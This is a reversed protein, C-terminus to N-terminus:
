RNMKLLPNAFEFNLEGEIVLEANNGGGIM